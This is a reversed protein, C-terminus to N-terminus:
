KLDSVIEVPSSTPGMNLHNVMEEHNEAMGRPWLYKIRHSMTTRISFKAWVSQIPPVLVSSAVHLGVLKVLYLPSRNPRKQHSLNDGGTDM